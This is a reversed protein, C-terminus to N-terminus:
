ATLASTPLLRPPLSREVAGVLPTSRAVVAMAEARVKQSRAVLAAPSETSTDTRTVGLTTATPGMEGPAGVRETPVAVVKAAVAVPPLVLARRQVADEPVMSGTVPAQVAGAVAPLTTMVAVELSSGVLLEVVVTLTMAAPVAVRTGEVVEGSKPAVTVRVGPKVPAVTAVSPVEGPRASREAAGTLPVGTVVAAMVEVLVKQSRTVLAAPSVTSAEAVTVGCVTTTPGTVGEAGTRETLVEVVKVAVAVPPTVFATVQLAEAPVMSGTVPTQVAGPVGPLTVMVAVELSSTEFLELVTTLTTGRPVETRVALM